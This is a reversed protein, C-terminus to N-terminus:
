YLMAREAPMYRVVTFYPHLDVVAAAAAQKNGQGLAAFVEGWAADEAPTSGPQGQAGQVDNSIL